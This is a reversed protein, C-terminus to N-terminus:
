MRWMLRSHVRTSSFSVKWAYQYEDASLDFVKLAVARGKWDGKVVSAQGAMIVEGVRTVEAEDIIPMSSPLQFSRRCIASLRRLTRIWLEDEPKLTKM